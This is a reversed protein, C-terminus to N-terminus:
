LATRTLKKGPHLYSQLTKVGRLMEDLDNRMSEVLTKHENASAESTGESNTAWRNM